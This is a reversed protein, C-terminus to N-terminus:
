RAVAVITMRVNDYLFCFVGVFKNVLVWVYKKFYRGLKTGDGKYKVRVKDYLLKFDASSGM